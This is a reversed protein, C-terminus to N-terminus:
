PLRRGPPVPEFGNAITSQAGHATWGGPAINKLDGSQSWPSLCGYSSELASQFGACKGHSSRTLCYRRTKELQRSACTKPAPLCNAVDLSWKLSIRCKGATKKGPCARAPPLPFPHPPPVRTRARQILREARVALHHRRRRGMIHLRPCQRGSGPTVRRADPPLKHRRLADMVRIGNRDNRAASRRVPVLPGFLAWTSAYGPRPATIQPSIRPTQVGHQPSASTKALHSVGHLEPDDVASARGLTLRARPVPHRSGAAPHTLPSGSSRTKRSATPTRLEMDNSRTSSTKM